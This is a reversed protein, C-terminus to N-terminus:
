TEFKGERKLLARKRKPGWRYGSLGGDSRVVRHCPIIVAIKNAACAGAVARSATPQGIAQALEAYSVTTGPPIARLASWVREQFATGRIDLPLDSGLAPHNIVSLVKELRNEFAADGAAINAKPFRKKLDELLVGDDDDFAIFCIGRATEAVITRGLYSDTIAYHITEGPAGKQWSSPTMGMSKAAAAHARAPGSYGAEYLADTVQENRDLSQHFRKARLATAYKKPSIGTHSKFIRQFHHPSMGADAALEALSPEATESEIKRCAHEVLDAHLTNPTEEPRCRKCPRFGAQRAAGANDFFVVNQRKPQRAACGPHCYIGTTKVAYLFDDAASQRRERVARWREEGLDIGDM